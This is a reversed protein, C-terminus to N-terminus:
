KLLTMKKSSTVEGATLRYLYVGSAVKTGTDSLADWEVSHNGAPMVEDILTRVKQGSVNYVELTVHESRPLSYDITTTPNFPNPYNQSLGYGEPLEVEKRATQEDTADVKFEMTTAREGNVPTLNVTLTGDGNNIQEVEYGIAELARVAEPMLYGDVIQEAHIAAAHSDTEGEASFYLEGHPADGRDVAIFAGYQSDVGVSHFRMEANGGGEGEAEGVWFFQNESGDLDAGNVQVTNGDEDTFFLVNGATFENGLREIVIKQLQGDPHEPSTDFWMKHVTHDLASGSVDEHVSKLEVVVDGKGIEEFALKLLQADEATELASLTLNCTVECGDVTILVDKLGLREIMEQLKYQNLALDRNVGAVAVEFGVTQDIKFPILTAALLIVAAAALGVTLRPKTLLQRKLASMVPIEKPQYQQTHAARAEVRRVQEPWSVLDTHDPTVSDAFARSLQRSAEARRACEDCEDLHEVLQPDDTRDLGAEELLTLRKLAERCRM